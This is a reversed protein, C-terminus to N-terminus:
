TLEDGRSMVVKGTRVLEIIRFKELMAILADLKDSNGTAQIIMSTPTLDVTKCGFHEGIQLAETRGASDVSIKVLALEKVVADEGTHDVCRLVDILKGVQKIIQELGERSGRAGITMRSFKGDAAPSVVLSEINYGRRAFTQAIRALVGPKNAVYVSLTHIDSETANTVSM